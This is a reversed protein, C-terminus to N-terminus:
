FEMLADKDAAGRLFRFCKKGHSDVIHIVLYNGLQWYGMARTIVSSFNKNLLESPELSDGQFSWLQTNRSKESLTPANNDSDIQGRRTGYEEWRNIAFVGRAIGNVVGVAVAGEADRLCKSVSWAKRTAEFVSEGRAIANQIPFIFVVPYSENPAIPEASLTRIMDLTLIGHQSAGHGRILNLAPGNQSVGLLDILAAEVHLATLENPLGHRVVYWDVDEDASWIEIIRRTKQDINADGSRLADRASAFHNFIRDNGQGNNGGAKGVYFVKRDRPDCLAYVYWGLKDETVSDFGQKQNGVIIMDDGPFAIGEMKKNDEVKYIEFSGFDNVMM